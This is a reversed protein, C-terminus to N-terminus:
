DKKGNRIVNAPVENGEQEVLPHEVKALSVLDFTGELNNCGVKLIIHWRGPHLSVIKTVINRFNVLHENVHEM